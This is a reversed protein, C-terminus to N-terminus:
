SKKRKLEAEIRRLDRQENLISEEDIEDIPKRLDMLSQAQQSSFGFKDILITKTKNKNKLIEKIENANNRAKSLGDMIHQRWFNIKLDKEVSDNMKIM